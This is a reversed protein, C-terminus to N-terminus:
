RPWELSRGPKRDFVTWQRCDVRVWNSGPAEIIDPPCSLRTTRAMGDLDPRQSRGRHEWREWRTKGLLEAFFFRELHDATERHAGGYHESVITQRDLTGMAGSTDRWAWTMRGQRWRTAASNWRSPCATSTRTRGLLAIADTWEPGPEGRWLLWGAGVPCSPGQFFQLGGNGDQTIFVGVGDSGVRIADGGDNADVRGFTGSSGAGGFDFTQVIITEGQHRTIVADSAQGGTWDIRRYTLAGALAPLAGQCAEIPPQGDPCQHQALLRAAQGLTGHHQPPAEGGLVAVLALLIAGLLGALAQVGRSRM